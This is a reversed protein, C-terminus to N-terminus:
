LALAADIIDLVEIIRDGGDPNYRVFAAGACIGKARVAILAERLKEVREIQDAADKCVQRHWEIGLGAGGGKQILRLKQLLTM